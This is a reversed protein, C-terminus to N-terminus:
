RDSPASRSPLEVGSIGATDRIKVISNAMYFM